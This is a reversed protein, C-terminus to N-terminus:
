CILMLWLVFGFRRVTFDIYHEIFFFDVSNQDDDNLRAILVSIGSGKEGDRAITWQKRCTRLALDRISVSSNYTPELQDDQRQEDMHIPGCSYM